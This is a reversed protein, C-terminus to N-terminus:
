LQWHKAQCPETVYVNMYMYAFSIRLTDTDRKRVFTYMHIDRATELFTCMVVIAIEQKNLM